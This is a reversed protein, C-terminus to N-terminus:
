SEVIGEVKGENNVGLLIEGGQTNLFACVTEYVDNPIQFLASKFELSINEKQKLLRKIRDLM